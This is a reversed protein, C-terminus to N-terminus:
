RLEVTKECERKRSFTQQGGSHPKSLKAAKTEKGNQDMKTLSLINRNVIDEAITNRRYMLQKVVYLVSIKDKFVPFFTNTWLPQM